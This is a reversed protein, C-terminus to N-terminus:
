KIVLNRHKRNFKLDFPLMNYEKNLDVYYIEYGEIILGFGESYSLGNIEIPENKMFKKVGEKDFVGIIKKYAKDRVIYVRPM